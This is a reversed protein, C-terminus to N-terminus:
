GDLTTQGPFKTLPFVDRFAQRARGDPDNVFLLKTPRAPDLGQPLIMPGSGPSPGTSHRSRIDTIAALLHQGHLDEQSLFAEVLDIAQISSSNHSPFTSALSLLFAIPASGTMRANVELVTISDDSAIFDFGIPGHLLLDPARSLREFVNTVRSVLEAPLSKRWHASRFSTGAIGQRHVSLLRFRGPGDFVAIAGMPEGSAFEQIQFRRPLRSQSELGSVFEALQEPEYGGGENTYVGVGGSSGDAKFVYRRTGSLKHITDIVADPDYPHDFPMTWPIPIGLTELLPLCSNKHNLVECSRAIQDLETHAANMVSVMRPTVSCAILRRTTEAAFLNVSHELMTEQQAPFSVIGSRSTMLAIGTQAKWIEANLDILHSMFGPTSPDTGTNPRIVLIDGPRTYMHGHIGSNLAEPSSPIKRFHGQIVQTIDAFCSSTDLCVIRPQQAGKATRTHRIEVGLIDSSLCFQTPPNMDTIAAGLSLLGVRDIESAM